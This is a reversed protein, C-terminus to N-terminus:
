RLECLHGCGRFGGETPGAEEGEAGNDEDVELLLCLFRYTEWPAGVEPCMRGTEASELDLVTEVCAICWPTTRSISCCRMLRSRWSSKSM